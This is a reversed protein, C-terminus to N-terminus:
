ILLYLLSQSFTEEELALDSITYEGQEYKGSPAGVFTSSFAVSLAM